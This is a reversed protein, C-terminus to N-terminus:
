VVILYQEHGTLDGFVINYRKVKSETDVSRHGLTMFKEGIISLRRRVRDRQNKKNGSKQPLIIPTALIHIQDLFLGVNKKTEGM